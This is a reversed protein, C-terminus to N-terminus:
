LSLSVSRLTVEPGGVGEEEVILLKNFLGREFYEAVVSFPESSRDLTNHFVEHQGRAESQARLADMLQINLKNCVPCDRETESYGRICSFITFCNTEIPLKSALM